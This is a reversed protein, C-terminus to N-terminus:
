ETASQEKAAPASYTEFLTVVRQVGTTESVVKAAATAEEPTLLGMLYVVGRETTVKVQNFPYGSGAMLNSRVKTTIWTDNSRESMTSAPAVETYNFVRRVNPQARVIMEAQDRGSTDPVEGTMLVARNYGNLNVHAKPIRDSIQNSGRLAITQDDLYAGSSRRDTAVAATGGVAAAGALFCGSLGTTLILSSAIAALRYKNM